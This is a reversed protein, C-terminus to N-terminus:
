MRGMEDADKEDRLGIRIVENLCQYNKPIDYEWIQCGEKEEMKTFQLEMYLEAVPMNKRTPIYRGIMKGIGLRQCEMVLQDFMAYELNRKFVRCSMVWVSIDLVEKERIDGLIVSVLGNNGFKDVLTGCISINKNEYQEVETKSLRLGTLNFQNTKNILQTVRDINAPNVKAFEASMDLGHLYDTYNGEKMVQERELNARYLQNRLLDEKSYNTVEFYGSWDLLTRLKSTDEVPLVTINDINARVEEQEAPNDDVFVFSDLNLNLQRSIDKINNSKREWNCKIITFDEPKLVASPHALGTRAADDENKSCINLLIGRDKVCKLYEQFEEYMMGEPTEIGLEIGEVGDDGIVGKWLTHDLDLILAKKNKGFYSKIINAVNYAVMPIADPAFAYKFAYWASDEFWRELGYYASLYHIDNVFVNSRSQMQETFRRNLEEVFCQRGTVHTSDMNGMVRYPLMEFNNQVIPCGIKDSINDWIQVFRHIQNDLKDAVQKASDGAEPWVQINKVTTHIYIIDPRFEELEDTDFVAEEYYNNYQGEYITPLIGQNLLFLELMIRMQGITSGSLIAIRKPLLDKQEQLVKKLKKAQRKIGASDFPYELEKM